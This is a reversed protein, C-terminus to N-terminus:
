GKCASLGCVQLSDIVNALAILFLLIGAIKEFWNMKLKMGKHFSKWFLMLIAIAIISIYFSIFSWTYLSLGFVPLGFSPFGPCIHLAIQRLAVSGGLLSSLISISYHYSRIGFKLNLLAGFSTGIMCIRQLFCLPCPNGEKSYQEYFAGFIIGCFIYIMLANLFRATKKM